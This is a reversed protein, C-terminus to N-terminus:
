RPFDVTGACHDLHASSVRCTESPQSGYRARRRPDVKKSVSTSDSSGTKRSLGVSAVGKEALIKDRLEAITIDAQAEVLALMHARVEDTVRTQVGFRSQMLRRRNGNRRLQQRVKRVYEWSVGFRSALIRCSGEGRESAELIRGRLDDSYARGM